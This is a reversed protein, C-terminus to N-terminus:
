DDITTEKRRQSSKAEKQISTKKLQRKKEIAKFGVFSFFIITAIIDATELLIKIAWM